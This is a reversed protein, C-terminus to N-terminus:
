ILIRNLGPSPSGGSEVSPFNEGQFSSSKIGLASLPEALSGGAGAGLEARYFPYLDMRDVALGAQASGPQLFIGQIIQLPNPQYSFSSRKIKALSILPCEDTGSGWSM